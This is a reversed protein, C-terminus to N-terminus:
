PKRGYQSLQRRAGGVERPPLPSMPLVRQVAVRLTTWFDQWARAIASVFARLRDLVSVAQELKVRELRRAKRIERGRRRRATQQTMTKM